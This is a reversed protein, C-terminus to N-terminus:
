RRLRPRRPVGAVPATADFDVICSAEKTMTPAKVARSNLQNQPTFGQHPVMGAVNHDIVYRGSITPM